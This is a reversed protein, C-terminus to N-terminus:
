TESQNILGNRTMALIDVIGRFSKELSLFKQYVKDETRRALASKANNFAAIDACVIDACVASTLCVDDVVFFPIFRM